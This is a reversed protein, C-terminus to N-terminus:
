AIVGLYLKETGKELFLVEDTRSRMMRKHAM